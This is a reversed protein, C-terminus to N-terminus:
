EAERLRKAWQDALGADKKRDFRGNRYAEEMIAMAGLHGQEAAREAWYIAKDQDAAVGLGKEYMNVLSYMATPEGLEASKM